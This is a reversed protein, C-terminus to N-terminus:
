TKCIGRLKKIEDFDYFIFISLGTIIIAPILFNIPSEITMISFNYLGHLVIALLMGLLTLTKKNKSKLNSLVLFYGLLASSLTHLLTAGIFRIFSITVTAGIIAGFSVEDIPSFLYLINEIAAFGLASVVMYLMIDLPEDLEQSNLAVMKVVLYKFVEETLAIVFFWKLVDILVPFSIFFPDVQLNKLLGSLGLQIFFVPITILAGCLFIKLIMKKPEPHLDKKLYYTLWVLSPLVGFAIYLLLKYYNM